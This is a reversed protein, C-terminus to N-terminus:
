MAHAPNSTRFEDWDKIFGKLDGYPCYELYMRYQWRARYDTWSMYRVIDDANTLKSQVYAERPLNSIWHYPNLYDIQYSFATEKVVMRRRIMGRHDHQLWLGARGNAGAGLHRM